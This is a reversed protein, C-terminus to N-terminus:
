KQKEKQRARRIAEANFLESIKQINWSTRDRETKVGLTELEKAIQKLTMSGNGDKYNDYIFKYLFQWYENTIAKLNMESPKKTYASSTTTEENSLDQENQSPEKEENSFLSNINPLAKEIIEAISLPSGEKECSAKKLREFEEYVEIPLKISLKKHTPKKLKKKPTKETTPASEMGELMAKAAEKDTKALNAVEILEKKSIKAHGSLLEKKKAEFNTTLDAVIDVAESYKANRRVTIGAVGNKKALSDATSKLHDNQDSSKADDSKRDGGHMKKELEYQKGIIYSKREKTLNRRGLQNNYVWKKAQDRNLFALHTYKLEIDNKQCIEFRNHGDLLINEEKWIILPHRLGEEKISAELTKYEETTLPDILDRFENDITPEM